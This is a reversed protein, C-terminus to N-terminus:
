YGRTPFKSLKLKKMIVFLATIFMKTFSGKGMNQITEKPCTGLLSIIPDFLLSM